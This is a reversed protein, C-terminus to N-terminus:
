FMTGVAFRFTFEDQQQLSQNLVGGRHPNYAFILRFPVNLVPMFFRVEAGTSTKFASQRGIARTQVGTDAGAPALSQLVFPDYLLPVPPAVREIKDEWLSFAQGTDRVQGADFFLILRVPSAITFAQEVNFLLSKNGGLVVGSEVDQPGITRLDFGRVTYEGGMFLKEFIPLERTGRYPSIYEVLARMGLSMRANQRLYWIAETSPKYFSTNGGLGALELAVSLRKGTTPFIPQDISNHVISPTIRSIIRQGNAGVLLSDALFPNRQLLQPDNYADAVDTVRIREYSYGTYMRTFGGGLPFGFSVTAGTSRQTFQSVYRVDSRFVNASGTINRDFLFPETFGLQYNEARSGAQIAMSLTEGRGLFNSTQFSLQGFFGEFQSVGAGFQLQNRNQEELKLNLNIKNDAAPVKDVAIDRGEELPRFYGLQNLRRVSYKLAETNFVGNEYIRLERRIVNDRTTTNGTFTIRNVFFQKGEQLRVTVDVVPPENTRSEAPATAATASDPSEGTLDPVDRPRPDPYGTFEMYGAAGYVEQAKQFGRRIKSQNYYDGTKIDFMPRLAETRVITNGDFTFDGVRYRRGEEVPVRLEVWRTKNDDSTNLVRIEPEGVQATIYGRYRYYDTVRQADEEYKAEQYTGGGSFFLWWRKGRNNKMQRRLPGDDIATNGVFEVRRIRVKPGDNMHFTLHILKPGEPLAKVEHTVEASQFGKEAMLDRVITEVKRVTGVDLFTDLRLEIQQTKLAEDIKSREVTKSGVYDVIKIRAREEMNYVVIKGVVGNSFTYDQTEISLDDLFPLNVLRRFDDRIVQEVSDDYPTWLGQSPRSVKQQLQIYYLYTQLDVLSVNGQAAFCPAIQWLVPGSGEPPLAAPAPVQVGCVTTAAAQAPGAPQQARSPLPLGFVILVALAAAPGRLM